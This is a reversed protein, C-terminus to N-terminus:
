PQMRLAGDLRITEGNLMPNEIITQVLHAYEEPNGLRQPCPVNSALNERVKEPLSALLPTNFLGPAITVCRIGELALDRAMPLTMGVIGGKSAAYAVQGMQGDFAAISATNIIVGKMHDVMENQAILAVALRNVNFTGITNVEVVRKFEDLPHAIKRRFDYTRKAAGIGACNVVVDLGGFKEECQELAKIVDGESVVSGEVSLVDESNFKTEIKQDFCVVKAGLRILRDVAARGLGSGGGTVLAVVGKISIFTSM